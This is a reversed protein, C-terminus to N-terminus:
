LLDAADLKGRFERRKRPQVPNQAHGNDLREQRQQDERVREKAYPEEARTFLVFGVVISKENIGLLRVLNQNSEDVAGNGNQELKSGYSENTERIVSLSEGEFKSLNFKCEAANIPSIGDIMEVKAGQGLEVVRSVGCPRKEEEANRGCEELERVTSTKGGASTVVIGRGEEKAGAAALSM